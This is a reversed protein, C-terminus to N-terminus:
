DSVSATCTFKGPVTASKASKAPHVVGARSCGASWLAPLLGALAGRGAEGLAAGGLATGVGTAGDGPAAGSGDAVSLARGCLGM